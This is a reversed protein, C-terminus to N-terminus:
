TVAPSGANLWLQRIQEELPGAMEESPATKLAGLLKDLAAHKDNGPQASAPLVACLLAVVVFRAAMVCAGEPRGNQCLLCRVQFPVLHRATSNPRPPPASLRYKRLREM